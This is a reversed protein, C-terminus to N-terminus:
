RRETSLQLHMSAIRLNNYIPYLKQADIPGNGVPHREAAYRFHEYEQVCTMCHYWFQACPDPKPNKGKLNLNESIAGKSVGIEESRGTIKALRNMATELDKYDKIVLLEFCQKACYNAIKKVASTLPTATNDTAPLKEALQGEIEERIIELKGDKQFRLIRDLTFVRRKLQVDAIDGELRGVFLLHRTGQPCEKLIPDTEGYLVTVVCIQRAAVKDLPLRTVGLKWLRGSTTPEATECDMAESILEALRNGDLEWDGIYDWSLPISRGDVPCTFRPVGDELYPTPQEDCENCKPCRDLPRLTDRKVIVGAKALPNAAGDPIMSARWRPPDYRLGDLLLRTTSMSRCGLSM